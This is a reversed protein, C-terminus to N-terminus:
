ITEARSRDGPAMRTSTTTVGAGSDIANADSTKRAHALVGDSARAFDAAAGNVPTTSDTAM